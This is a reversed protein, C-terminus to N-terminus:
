GTARWDFDITASKNQDANGATTPLYLAIVYTISDGPNLVVLDNFQTLWYQLPPFPSPPPTAQQYVAMRLDQWLHNDNPGLAQLSLTYTSSSTNEITVTESATDGPAAGAITITCSPHNSTISLGATGCQGGSGAGGSGSGGGSSGTSAAAVTTTAAEVTTTSSVATTTPRTTPTTTPPSSRTSTTTAPPTGGAAPRGGFGQNASPVTGGTTPPPPLPTVGLGPIPQRGNDPPTPRASGAALGYVLVNGAAATTLLPLQPREATLPLVVRGRAPAGQRFGGLNAASGHHLGAEDQMAAAIVSWAVPPLSAPTGRPTPLPDTYDLRIGVLAPNPRAIPPAAHALGPAALGALAVGLAALRKM